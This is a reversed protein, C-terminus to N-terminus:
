MMNYHWNEMETQHLVHDTWSKVISQIQDASANNNLVQAEFFSWLVYFDMMANKEQDSLEGYGPAYENLWAQVM